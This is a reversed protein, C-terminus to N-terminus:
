PARKLADRKFSQNSRWQSFVACFFASVVCFEVWASVLFIAVGGPPGELSESALLTFLPVVIYIIPLSFILLFEFAPSFGLFAVGLLSIFIFTGVVSGKFLARRM